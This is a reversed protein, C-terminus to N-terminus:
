DADILEFGMMPYLAGGAFSDSTLVLRVVDGAGLHVWTAISGEPRQDAFHAISGVVIAANRTLHATFNSNETAAFFSPALRYTVRYYGATAVVFENVNPASVISSNGVVTPSSFTAPTPTSDAALTMMIGYFAVFDNNANTGNAGPVGPTGAAGTAGTAGAPGAPGTAGTAGTPGAPGTPGVAGAAGPAGAVGQPGAAGQPGMAGQPGTAGQPGMAGAPGAPGTAGTAGPTGPQGDVGNEGNVGDAGGAPSAHQQGGSAVVLSAAGLAAGTVGAILALVMTVLFKRPM